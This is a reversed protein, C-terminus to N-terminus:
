FPLDTLISNSFAVPEIMVIVPKEPFQCQFAVNKGRAKANFLKIAEEILPCINNPTLNIQLKGSEIAMLTRTFRLLQNAKFLSNSLAEYVKKPEIELPTEGVESPQLAKLLEYPTGIYNAMDHTLIRLLSERESLAISLQQNSNELDVKKRRIIELFSGSLLGMVSGLLTFYLGMALHHAMLVGMIAQGMTMGQISGPMTQAIILLSIPHLIFYGILAGFLSTQIAIKSFIKM